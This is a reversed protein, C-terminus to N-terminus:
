LKLLGPRWKAVQKSWQRSSGNHAQPIKQYFDDLFSWEGIWLCCFVAQWASASNLNAWKLLLNWRQSFDKHWRLTGVLSQLVHKWYSHSKNSHKLYCGLHAPTKVEMKKQTEKMVVLVFLTCGKMKRYIKSKMLSQLM